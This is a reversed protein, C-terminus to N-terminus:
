GNGVHAWPTKTTQQDLWITKRNSTLCILLGVVAFRQRADHVALVRHRRVDGVAAAAEDAAHQLAIGVSAVGELDGDGVWM